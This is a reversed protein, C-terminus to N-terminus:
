PNKGLNYDSLEKKLDSILKIKDISYKINKNFVKQLINAM